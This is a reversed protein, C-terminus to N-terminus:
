RESEMEEVLEISDLLVLPIVLPITEGKAGWASLPLPLLLAVPLQLPSSFLMSLFFAIGDRGGDIRDVGRDM